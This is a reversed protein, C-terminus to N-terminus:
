DPGNGVRGLAVQLRQGSVDVIFQAAFFVVDRRIARLVLRKGRQERILVLRLDDDHPRARFLAKQHRRAKQDDTDRASKQHVHQQGREQAFGGIRKASRAPM